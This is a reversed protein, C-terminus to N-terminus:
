PKKRLDKMFDVFIGYIIFLVRFANPWRIYYATLLDYRKRLAHLEEPSWLMHMKRRSSGSKYEMIRKERILDKLYFYNYDTYFGSVKKALESRSAPGDKLKHLFQSKIDDITKM